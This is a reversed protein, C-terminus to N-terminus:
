KGLDDQAKKLVKDLGTLNGQNQGKYIYELFERAKSSLRNKQVVCKALSDIAEPFKRMNKLAVGQFYYTEGVRPRLKIYRDTLSSLASNNDAKVLSDLVALINDRVYDNMKSDPREKTFTLLGDARKLQDTIAVIKTVREYDERYLKVEPSEDDQALISPVGVALLMLALSAFLFLRAVRNTM